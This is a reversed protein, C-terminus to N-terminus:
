KLNEFKDLDIEQEDIKIKKKKLWVFGKDRTIVAVDVDGGVGPIDGPNMAVGDSFRQIAETTKITLVCFDVADQLTMTGWSIVYELRRLQKIVEQEGIKKVAEQVFPLNFVRDEWGLVIRATVDKQGIWSAGYEKGKENSDRKKNIEGPINCIFTQYSSDRNFGAVIIDIRDIGGIGQQEKGTKDKFKFKVFGKGEEFDGILEFGKSELDQGIKAKVNALQKKWDYREDFLQHLKETIEKVDMKEVEEKRKFEEVFASINKISGQDPLFALGTIACGIRKNLQFIKSANDSGIRAMGKQNRYSQRSDAALVMGSSTTANIALSM